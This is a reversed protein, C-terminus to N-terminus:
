PADLYALFFAILRYSAFYQEFQIAELRDRKSHILQLTDNDLSHLSIVPIKADQFSHSDDDGVADVDMGSIPTKLTAALRTMRRVLEPTSRKIWIKLPTTGLCEINVFARIAQRQSKDLSKVFKGSGELGTEEKAFAVFTYNNKRPQPKLAQYLSALLSAGTWDDIIGQGVNAFDYHAGVVVVPSSPDAGPLRCIVNNANRAVKQFEVECGASRFLEAVTTEREEHSVTGTALRAEIVSREVLDVQLRSDAFLAMALLTPPLAIRMGM